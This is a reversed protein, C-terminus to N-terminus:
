ATRQWRLVVISPQINNHSQSGGESSTEGSWTKSADFGFAAITGKSHGAGNAIYASYKNFAGHAGGGGSESGDVQFNGTINMTGRTHTHSPMQEETLTHTEAGVSNGLTSFTGSDKCVTTKGQGYLEWQQGLM